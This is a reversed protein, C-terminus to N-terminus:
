WVTETQWEWDGTFSLTFWDIFQTNLEVAHQLSEIIIIICYFTCVMIRDMDMVTEVRHAISIVTIDSFRNLITEQIQGDTSSIVNIM